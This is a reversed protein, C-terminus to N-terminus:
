YGSSGYITHSLKLALQELVHASKKSDVGTKFKVMAREVDAGEFICMPGWFYSSFEVYAREIEESPAGTKKLTAIKAAATSANRYVDIQNDYFKQQWQDQQTERQLVMERAMAEQQQAIQQYGFFIGAFVGIATAFSALTSLVSLRRDLSKSVIDIEYRPNEAM